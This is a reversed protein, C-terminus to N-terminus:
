IVNQKLVKAVCSCQLRHKVKFSKDECTFNCKTYKFIYASLERSTTMQLYIANIILYYKKSFLQGDLWTMARLFIMIRRSAKLQNKSGLNWGM